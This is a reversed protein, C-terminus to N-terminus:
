HYNREGLLASGVRIMTSGEEIAVEFDSSTGMSLDVWQNSPFQKKLSELILRLRRFYPRIETSNEALPPMTMLGEVRLHKFELIKEVFDFLATPQDDESFLFGSKSTEGAINLEILVPLTRGSEGLLRELKEATHISDLSHLMTFADTVIRAKRSQLHGIMHWEIGTCDSFDPMKALTEEPYNEGFFKAGCKYAVMMKETSQGKSVVILKLDTRKRGCQNLARFIQEEVIEFNRKITKEISQTTM